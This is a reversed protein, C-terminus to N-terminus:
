QVDRTTRYAERQRRAAIAAERVQEHTDASLELRLLARDVEPVQEILSMTDIARLRLPLTAGPSAAVDYLKRVTREDGSIVLQRMAARVTEDNQDGLRATLRGLTVGPLLVVGTILMLLGLGITFWGWWPMVSHVHAPILVFPQDPDDAVGPIANPDIAIFKGDLDQPVVLADEEKPTLFSGGRDAPTSASLTAPGRTASRRPPPAPAPAPPTPESGGALIHPLIEEAEPPLISPPQLPESPTETGGPTVLPKQKKAFSDGWAPHTLSGPNPAPDPNKAVNLAAQRLEDWDSQDAAAFFADLEDQPKQTEAM